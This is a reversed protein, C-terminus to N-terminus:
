SPDKRTVYLRTDIREVTLGAETLVEAASTAVRRSVSDLDFDASVAVRGPLGSGSVRLAERSRPYDGGQPQLGAKRLLRSVYTATLTGM